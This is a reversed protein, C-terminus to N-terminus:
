KADPEDGKEKAEEEIKNVLKMGEEKSKGACCFKFKKGSGCPCPRYMMEQRQSAVKDSNDHPLKEGNKEIDADIDKKHEQIAEAFAILQKSEYGFEFLVTTKRTSMNENQVQLMMRVKKDDCYQTFSKVHFTMAPAENNTKAVKADQAPSNLNRGMTDVIKSEGKEQKLHDYADQM